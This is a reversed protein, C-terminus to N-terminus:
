KKITVEAERDDRYVSDNMVSKMNASCNLTLEPHKTRKLCKEM